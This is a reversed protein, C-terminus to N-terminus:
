AAYVNVSPADASAHIVRVIAKGAPPNVTQMPDNMAPPAPPAVPSTTAAPDKSELTCATLAAFMGVVVLASSIKKM